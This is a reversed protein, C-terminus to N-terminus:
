GIEVLIVKNRNVKVHRRIALPQVRSFVELINAKKGKL